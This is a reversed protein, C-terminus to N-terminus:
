QPVGKDGLGAASLGELALGFGADARVLRKFPESFLVRSYRLALTPRAALAAALERARAMLKEQPLIENVVGLRLAEQADIKQSHMLFHRGRVPGLVAPWVIHVGDGPVIGWELHRDQFVTAPTCLVTDCLLALETHLRAPGNIACIVPAEIDLLNEMIRRGDLFIRSWVWPQALEAMGERDVQVLWEDGTGTLIVVRNRRDRGIDYFADVFERHSRADWKLPGGNSHWRVEVVGREDRSMVLNEYRTFYAPQQM